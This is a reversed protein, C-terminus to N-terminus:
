YETKHVRHVCFKGANKSFVRKLFRVHKEYDVQPNISCVLPTVQALFRTGLGSNLIVM